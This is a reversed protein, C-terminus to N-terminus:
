GEEPCWELTICYDVCGDEVDCNDKIYQVADEMSKFYTGTTYAVRGELKGECGEECAGTIEMPYVTYVIM